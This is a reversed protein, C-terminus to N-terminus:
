INNNITPESRSDPSSQQGGDPGFPLSRQMDHVCLANRALVVGFLLSSLCAQCRQTYIAEREANGLRLSYIYINPSNAQSTHAVVIAAAHQETRVTVITIKEPSLVFNGDIIFM